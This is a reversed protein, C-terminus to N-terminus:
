DGLVYGKIGYKLLNGQIVKSLKEEVSVIIGVNRIDPNMGLVESFSYVRYGMVEKEHVHGDSVIFGEIDIDQMQLKQATRQGVGGAGYLYLKRYKKCFSFLNQEFYSTFDTIKNGVESITLMEKILFDENLMELGACRDKFVRGIYYKGMGSIIAERKAWFSGNLGDCMDEERDLFDSFRMVPAMLMGLYEDEQLCSIVNAIYTINYIMNECLLRTESILTCQPIGELKNNGSDKHMVERLVCIYEVREPLNSITTEVENDYICLVNKQVETLYENTLRILMQDSIAVIIAVKAFDNFSNDSKGDSLIYSLQLKDAILQKSCNRLMYDLILNIDYDTSKDIYDIAKRFSGNDPEMYQSIDKGTICKKKLFPANGYRILEYPLVLYPTYANKNLNKDSNGELFSCDTYTGWKYGLGEFYPTFYQEHNVVVQTVNWKQAQVKKWYDWFTTDQILRKQIVMFFSQIFPPVIRDTSTWFDITEPQSSLGWFDLNREEMSHFIDDFPVFPGFFTDNCLVLEDYEQVKKAGLYDILVEQFAGIDYGINNRVYIDESYSFFRQKGEESLNGNCVIVLHDLCKNLDDLLYLVYDEVIGDKEYFVFIGLRKDAVNIVM